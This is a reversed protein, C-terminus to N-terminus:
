AAQQLAGVVHLRSREDLNPHYKSKRDIKVETGFKRRSDTDKSAEKTGDYDYLNSTKRGM